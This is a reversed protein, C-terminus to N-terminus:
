DYLRAWRAGLSILGLGIQHFVTGVAMLLAFILFNLWGGLWRWLSIM